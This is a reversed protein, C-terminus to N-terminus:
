DSTAKFRDVANRVAASYSAEWCAGTETNVLQVRVPVTLGLPLAPLGLFPGTASLSISSDGAAGPTLKLSTVSGHEQDRDSYSYGSQDGAWCPVGRCTTAAPIDEEFVPRPTGLVEAYMCLAYSSTAAPDGLDAGSTLGGDRWRWRLGDGGGPVDKVVLRSAGPATTTICDTRAMAPCDDRSVAYIVDYDVGKTGGLDDNSIWAAVTTGV